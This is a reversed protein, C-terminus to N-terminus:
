FPKGVNDFNIDIAINEYNTVNCFITLTARRRGTRELYVFSFYNFYTETIVAKDIYM